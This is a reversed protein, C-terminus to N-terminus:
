RMIIGGDVCLIQGTIFAAEDSALFAVTPAIEEPEAWRGLPVRALSKEAFKPNALIKKTMETKAAPSIANVTIGLNHRGLERAASKTVGLIGSKAASYNIQGITGELGAASTINIIRGYKRERMHNCIARICNYTGKLNVRIVENWQEESMKHLMAPRSIGANNVLIDIHGFEKLSEEVLNEVESMSGVDAQIAKSKRGIEKIKGVVEQADKEYGKIYNVIVDAGEEAFKICIAKGIGSSGGTVIAKKGELRM